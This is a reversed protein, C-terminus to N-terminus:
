SEVHILYINCNTSKTLLFLNAVFVHKSSMNSELMDFQNEITGQNPDFWDCKFFVV